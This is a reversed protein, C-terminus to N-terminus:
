FLVRPAVCEPVGNENEKSSNSVRSRINGHRLPAMPTKPRRLRASPPTKPDNEIGHHNLYRPSPLNEDVNVDDGEDEESSTPSDDGEAVSPARPSCIRVRHLLDDAHADFTLDQEVSSELDFPGTPSIDVKAFLASLELENEAAASENLITGSMRVRRVPSLPTRFAEAAFARGASPSLVVAEPTHMLEAAHSWVIGDVNSFQQARNGVRGPSVSSSLPPPSSSPSADFSSTVTERARAAVLRRAEFTARELRDTLIRRERESAELKVQLVDNRAQLAAIHNMLSQDHDCTEDSTTHFLARDVDVLESSSRRAGDPALARAAPAKSRPMAVIADIDTGKSRDDDCAVDECRFEKRLAHRDIDVGLAGGARRRARADEARGERRGDEGEGWEGDAVDWERTARM